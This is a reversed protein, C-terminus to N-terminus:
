HFLEVALAAQLGDKATKGFAEAALLTLIPRMRKGGLKLFYHLPDYLNAPQEPLNFDRLANEILETYTALTKM